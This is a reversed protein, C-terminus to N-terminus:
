SAAPDNMKVQDIHRWPLHMWIQGINIEKSKILDVLGGAHDEHPHSCVIHDLYSIKHNALFALINDSDGTKGGDILIRLTGAPSWQTVLISDANGLNLMDVELGDYAM